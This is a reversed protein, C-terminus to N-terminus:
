MHGQHRQHERFVVDAHKQQDPSMAAYLKEFVPILQKLGDSHQDAITQFSKLDEVATMTKLHSKRESIRARMAEENEKMAQAVKSWLDEQAKTIQLRDHLDKIRAASHEFTHKMHPAANPREAAPPVAGDAQASVNSVHVITFVAVLFTASAITRVSRPIFRSM